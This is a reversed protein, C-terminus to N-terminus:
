LGKNDAGHLEGERSRRAGKYADCNFTGLLSSELRLTHSTLPAFFCLLITIAASCANNGCKGACDGDGVRITLM